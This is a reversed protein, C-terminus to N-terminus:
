TSDHNPNFIISKTHCIRKTRQVTSMLDLSIAVWKNYGIFAVM